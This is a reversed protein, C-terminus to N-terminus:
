IGGGGCASVGARVRDFVPWSGSFGRWNLFPSFCWVDCLLFLSVSFSRVVVFHLLCFGEPVELHPEQTENQQRASTKPAATKTKNRKTEPPSRAPPKNARRAAHARSRRRDQKLRRGAAADDPDGAAAGGLGPPIWYWLIFLFGMLLVLMELWFSTGVFARDSAAAPALIARWPNKNGIEM